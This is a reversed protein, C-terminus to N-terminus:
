KVFTKAITLAPNSLLWYGVATTPTQLQLWMFVALFLAIIYFIGTKKTKIVSTTKM